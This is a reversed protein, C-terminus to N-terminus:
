PLLKAKKIIQQLSLLEGELDNVRDYISAPDPINFNLHLKVEWIEMIDDPDLNQTPYERRNDSKCILNRYKDIKNICRKVLGDEIKNSIVVYIQNDKIGTVWNEVFSGVVFSRDPITPFMSNGRVEFMRFVGNNLGPMRFTPLKKIFNPDSWGKLYGAKAKMPVLVINDENHSDVTIIQPTKNYSSNPESVYFSNVNNGKLMEGTGNLLWSADIEDFKNSIDQLIDISPKSGDKKLRNLKESSSYGLIEALSSVNKIGYYDIIQSIREFFNSNIKLNTQM